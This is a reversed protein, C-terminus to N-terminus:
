PKKVLLLSLYEEPRSAVEDPDTTWFEGEMGLREGYILSAQEQRLRHLLAARSRYSKLLVTTSHPRFDLDDALESRFAPIIRLEEGNEVLVKGSRAALAAFSTIGPVVEVALEPLARRLLDLVYGFTSYTMADGLTAFVCDRGAELELQICRANAEIQGARVAADRSMSFTLTELRGRLPGLSEVVSRSVSQVANQSVVTFIVDAARLLEAARLTLYGPDGPGVGVGYFRGLRARAKTM